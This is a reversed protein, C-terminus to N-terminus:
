EAEWTFVSHHVLYVQSLQTRAKGSILREREKETEGEGGINQPLIQKLAYLVLREGYWLIIAIVEGM